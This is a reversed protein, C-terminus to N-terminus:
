NQRVHMANVTKRLSSNCDHLVSILRPLPSIGTQFCIEDESPVSCQDTDPSCSSPPLGLGSNTQTKLLGTGHYFLYRDTTVTLQVVNSGSFQPLYGGHYVVLLFLQPGEIEFDYAACTGLLTTSQILKTICTSEAM